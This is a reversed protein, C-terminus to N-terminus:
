QEMRRCTGPGRSGPNQPFLQVVKFKQGKQGWIQVNLRKYDEKTYKLPKGYNKSSLKSDKLVNMLVLRLRGRAVM